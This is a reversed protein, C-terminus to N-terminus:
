EQCLSGCSGKTQPEEHERRAVKHHSIHSFALFSTKELTHFSITFTCTDMPKWACNPPLCMPCVLGKLEALSWKLHVPGGKPFKRLTKRTGHSFSSTCLMWVIGHTLCLIQDYGKRPDPPSYDVALGEQFTKRQYSCSSLKASINFLCLPYKQQSPQSILFTRQFPPLYM